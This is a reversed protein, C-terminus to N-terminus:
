EERLLTSPNGRASRRAPRLTGSLAAVGVLAAAGLAMAATTSPDVGDLFQAAVPRLVAVVGVVGLVVGVAVRLGTESLVQRLLRSREAGLSLRIGFERARRRVSVAMVGHVGIVVLVLALLGMAALFGAATRELWLGDDVFSSMPALDAVPMSPDLARVQERLAPLITEPDGVTRVHLNAAAPLAQSFPVYLFFQPNEHIYRYKADEAVGIVEVAPESPYDFHFHQGIPDQGPWALEAMTRNIIAVPPGDPLDRDDFRRGRLLAIGATEFFGPAVANTRHWLRGGGSAPEDSGPLFVQRQVVAGRLLRNESWGAAEVGPLARVREALEEYFTRVQEDTYGQDGPAVSLVALRDPEFGLDISRAKVLHEIFLGGGVLAVVALAVQGVVLVHGSRFRRTWGDALGASKVQKAPDLRASRWAPLVGVVATTVALLALSWVLRGSNLGSSLIGESLLPPRFNWLLGETWGAAPIALVGGAGFLLLNEGVLQRVLRFRRAGLIQRVALERTRELGRLLLLVSVNLCCVLLVLGAALSLVRAYGVYNPRERPALVGDLLPEVVTGLGEEEVPHEAELQRCLAMLESQGRTITVGPALRGIIAFLSVDRQEYSEKIVGMDRYASPPVWADVEVHLQTGMFGPPGVGVVQFPLSDIRVIRGVVGPDSGFRRVWTAHSLVAVRATAHFTTEDPRFFRGAAPTLGLTRFYGADAFMAIARLPEIGDASFNVPGWTYIGLEDFSRNRERLDLYTPYSFRGMGTYEGSETRFTSYIAVLRDLAEVPLPHLFIAEILSIVATNVGIGLVLSLVIVLSLAPRRRHTRLGLLLARLLEQFSLLKGLSRPRGVPASTEHPTPAM